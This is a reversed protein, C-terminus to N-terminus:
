LRWLYSAKFFLGRKMELFRDDPRYENEQWRVKEYLSGYGLQIVTGPIYTFSLLLDGLLKKRYDNYELVGRFFLYKNAQYTLKNRLITYEYAKSSDARAFLDSYTLRLELDLKDTPHYRCIGALSNGYGQFPEQAYRVQNGRRCALYLYLKKSLWSNAILRYQSIDFRRGLFIESAKWAELTLGTNGPLLLDVGFRGLAENMGSEQDRIVYVLLRPKVKRFFGSKPYFNPGIESELGTLGARSLFGSESFFGRSISYFCGTLDLDRTSKSYYANLATGREDPMSPNDTFSAFCHFSLTESRSLRLQGDLGVLRNTEAGQERGTYFAGLNSDDKLTRKYRLITFAANETGAGAHLPDQVGEDVAFIAGLTDRGGSKGTLKFGLLPDVIRRTHVASMFFSMGALQFIDSGELFFPRKETYYLDSRLNADVQGADSEVQSFDPNWTLDLVLKSTLGLKGTIGPETRSESRQLRGHQQEHKRNFVVAPLVELLTYRRIDRLELPRMQSLFAYGKAPDLEPYSAHESIRSIFREFFIAMEVREKGAYRISKFPIRMEVAYGDPGLRGASSWVFDASDDEVGGAYRSDGQIGLPNVYFAYLAQQDNFSDLNICVFDDTMITDRSALTAKIKEPSRDRCYFAFYLNEADYAMYASTQESADKGFDPIFTKFGSIEQAEQWAADDLVGDIRPPTAARLPKLFDRAPLSSSLALCLSFLLLLPMKVPKDM